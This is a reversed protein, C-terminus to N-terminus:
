PYLYQVADQLQYGIIAEDHVSVVKEVLGEQTFEFFLMGRLRVLKDSPAM